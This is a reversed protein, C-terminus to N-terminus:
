GKISGAMLGRTFYKQLIVYVVCLPITTLITLASKISETEAFVDRENMSGSLTDGGGRMISSIFIQIPYLDGKMIFLKAQLFVNWFGVAQLLFVTVLIAQSLPLVIRWFIQFDNAGDIRCSEFIDEPLNRYFTITMIVLFPVIIMNLVVAWLSDLLGLMQMTLRLPILPRQLIIFAVLMYILFPGLSFEKKPRSLPFAFIATGVISLVGGVIVLFMSNMFARVLPELQKRIYYEYNGLTFDKPWLSVRGADVETPYSFSKAMEHVFPLIVTMTVLIIIFYSLVASLTIRKLKSKIQNLYM